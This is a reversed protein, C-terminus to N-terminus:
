HKANERVVLEMARGLPLQVIGAKQDVWAYSVVQTAQAKRLDALAAKRTAPTAKWALEKPLNDPTENPAAPPHGPVYVRVTIVWFLGLLIFIAATALLSVPRPAPAPADSM